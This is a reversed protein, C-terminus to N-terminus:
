NDKTCRVSMAVGPNESGTIFGNVLADMKVYESAFVTKPEAATWFEATATMGSFGGKPTRYGAPLVNFGIADSGAGGKKWGANAKLRAGAKVKGGAFTQLADWEQASPLHWGQPCVGTAAKRTYLQGYISCNFDKKNYCYSDSLTAFDLNQAMWIANGAKIWQYVHGDRADKFVGAKKGEFNADPVPTAVYNVSNGLGVVLEGVMLPMADVFPGMGGTVTRSSRARTSTAKVDMIQLNMMYRDDVKGITGAVLFDVGLASGIDAMCSEKDCGLAQAKAQHEMMNAVDNWGIVQTGNSRSVEMTLLDSFAALDEASVQGSKVNTVAIKLPSQAFAVSTLVTATSIFAKLIKM